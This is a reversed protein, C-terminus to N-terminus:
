IGNLNVVWNIKNGLKSGLIYGWILNKKIKKIIIIKTDGGENIQFTEVLDLDKWM